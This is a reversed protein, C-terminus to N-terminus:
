GMDMQSARLEEAIATMGVKTPQEVRLDRGVERRVGILKPPLIGAAKIRGEVQATVPTDVPKL